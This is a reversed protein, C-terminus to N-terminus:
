PVHGISYLWLVLALVAAGLYVVWEGSTSTRDYLADERVRAFRLGTFLILVVVSVVALARLPRPWYQAHSSAMARLLGVIASVGLGTIGLNRWIRGRQEAPMEAQRLHFIVITVLVTGGLILLAWM